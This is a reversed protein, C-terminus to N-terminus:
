PGLPACCPTIGDFGWFCRHGRQEFARIEEMWKGPGEALIPAAGPPCLGTSVAGTFVPRAYLLVLLAVVAVIVTICVCVIEFRNM